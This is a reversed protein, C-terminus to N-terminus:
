NLSAMSTRLYHRARSLLVRVNAESFGTVQAIESNSLSNFASLRIVTRQNDPLSDILSCVIDLEQRSAAERHPDNDAAVMATITDQSGVTPSAASNRLMDICKSRVTTLCYGKLNSISSLRSRNGWLTTLAEQVADEAMCYDRLITFALGMMSRTHPMVEARFTDANM